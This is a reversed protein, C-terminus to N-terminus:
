TASGRRLEDILRRLELERANLASIEAQMAKRQKEWEARAEALELQTAALERQTENLAAQLAMVAQGAASTLLNDREPRAKYLTALGGALLASVAAVAVNFWGSM